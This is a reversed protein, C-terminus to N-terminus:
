ASYDKNVIESFFHIKLKEQIERVEEQTILVGNLHLDLSLLEALFTEYHSVLDTTNQELNSNNYEDIDFINKRIQSLLEKENEGFFILGLRQAQVIGSEIKNFMKVTPNIPKNSRPDLGIELNRLYEHSIGLVQSFERGTM